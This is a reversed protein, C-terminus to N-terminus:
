GRKKVIQNSCNFMKRGKRKKGEMAYMNSQYISKILKLRNNKNITFFFLSILHFNYSYTCYVTCTNLFETLTM